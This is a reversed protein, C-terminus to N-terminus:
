ESSINLQSAFNVSSVPFNFIDTRFRDSLLDFNKQKPGHFEPHSIVKVVSVHM